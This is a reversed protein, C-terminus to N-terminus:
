SATALTGPVNLLSLIQYGAKLKTLLEKVKGWWLIQGKSVKILELDVIGYMKCPWQVRSVTLSVHVYSQDFILFALIVQDLADNGGIGM